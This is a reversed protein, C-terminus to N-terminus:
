RQNHLLLDKAANVRAALYTSGGHDPHLRKMLERHARTIQEPAAGMPLGLVDYAEAITMTAGMPRAAADEAGEQKWEPFRRNLYAELLRAGDPDVSACHALLAICEARDLNDIQRGSYPGDLVTGHMAGSAHDLVMELTPSRAKSQAGPGSDSPNSLPRGRFLWLALGGFTLALNVRGRMLLFAAALLSLLGGGRKAFSALLAPNARMFARTGFHVLLVLGIGLVFYVM